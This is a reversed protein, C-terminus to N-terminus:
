SAILTVLLCPVSPKAPWSLKGGSGPTATWHADPSRAPPLAQPYRLKASPGIINETSAAFTMPSMLYETLPAAAGPAQAASRAV